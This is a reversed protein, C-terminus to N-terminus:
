SLDRVSGALVGELVIVAQGRIRVQQDLLEVDMFGSRASSQFARMKSKALRKSWYPTLFTHTVGTVPDEHGGSWPWFFRSHFDFGDRQSAATVVVGHISDHSQRLAQFDPQLGRLLDTDDVELLLINAEVNFETNRVSSLGLAKLLALPFEAPHTAYAPMLMSIADADAQVRISVGHGTQFQITTRHQRAHLVRSAALTAHGCLPIEMIPSFYRIEFSGDANGSQSEAPSVFATESLNLEQAIKQMLEESLPPGDVLCVGAPNGQFPQDTFSDVIYAKM